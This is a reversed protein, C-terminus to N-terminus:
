GPGERSEVQGSTLNDSKTTMKQVMTHLEAGFDIIKPSGYRIDTHEGAWVASSSLMPQAQTTKFDPELDTAMSNFNANARTQM